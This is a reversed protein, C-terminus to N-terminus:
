KEKFPEPLLMWAIVYNNIENDVIWYEGDTTTFGYSVYDFPTDGSDDHCSVIVEDQGKPMAFSCPIWQPEPELSMLRTEADAETHGDWHKGRPLDVCDFMDWYKNEYHYTYSGEPTDVGVIFWGGGFCYEGDEHRYSKWAKGKYAKVLAAFLIMGQEYLGNFTHYGDSLDGIGTEPIEVVKQSEPEIPLATCIADCADTFDSTRTCYGHGDGWECECCDDSTIGLEKMLADADILRM